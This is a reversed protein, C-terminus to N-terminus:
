TGVNHISFRVVDTIHVKKKRLLGRSAEREPIGNATFM